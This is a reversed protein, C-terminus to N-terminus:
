LSLIARELTNAPNFLLNEIVQQSEDISIAGLSASFKIKLNGLLKGLFNSMVVSFYIAVLCRVLVAGNRSQNGVIDHKCQAHLRYELVQRGKGVRLILELM